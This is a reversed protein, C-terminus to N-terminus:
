LASALHEHTAVPNLYSFWMTCKLAEFILIFINENYFIWTMNNTMIKVMSKFFDRNSPKINPLFLLGNVENNPPSVQCQNHTTALEGSVM